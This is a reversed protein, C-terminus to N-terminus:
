PRNAEGETCPFHDFNFCYATPDNTLLSLYPGGYENVTFIIVGTNGYSDTFLGTADGSGHDLQIIADAIENSHTGGDWIGSASFHFENDRAEISFQIYGGSDNQLESIHWTGTYDILSYIVSTESSTESESETSNETIDDAQTDVSETVVPETSEPIPESPTQSSYNIAIIAAAAIPICLVVAPVKISLRPNDVTLQIHLATGDITLTDWSSRILIYKITFIVAVALSIISIGTGADLYSLNALFVVLGAWALSAYIKPYIGRQYKRANSIEQASCNELAKIYPEHAKTRSKEKIRAIAAKVQEPDRINTNLYLHECAAKDETSWITDIRNNIEKRFPEKNQEQADYFNIADLYSNCTDEDATKIDPCLRRLCDTKLQNLTHSQKLGFEEMIALIRAKAQLASAENTKAEGSYEKDLLKEVCGELGIGFDHSARFIEKRENPFEMFIYEQLEQNWPCCCFAKALLHMRKDPFQKANDFLAQARKEDFPFSIFGQQWENLLAVHKSFFTHIDQYLGNLLSNQTQKASYLKEKSGSAEAASVINGTANALSHGLGSVANLAGATAAGKLAGSLGFGGGQWRGRSAKRQARYNEEAQQKEIIRDYRDEIDELASQAGNFRVCRQAYMQISLDYIEYGQIQQFMPKVLHEGYLNNVFNPFRNLVNEISNQQKYWAPFINSVKAKVYERDTHIDYGRVAADNFIVQEGFLIYKKM